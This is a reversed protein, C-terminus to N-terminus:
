KYNKRIYDELRAHVKNALDDKAGNVFKNGANLAMTTVGAVASSRLDVTWNAQTALHAANKSIWAQIMRNIVQDIQTLQVAWRAPGPLLGVASAILGTAITGVATLLWTVQSSLDLHVRSGQQTAVDQAVALYPAVYLLALMGVVGLFLKTNTKM